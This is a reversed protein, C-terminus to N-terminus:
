TGFAVQSRQGARTGIFLDNKDLDFTSYPRAEDDYNMSIWNHRDLWGFLAPGKKNEYADALALLQRCSTGHGANSVVPVGQVDPYGTGGASGGLDATGVERTEGCDAGAKPASSGGCGSGVLVLGVVASVITIRSVVDVGGKERAISL